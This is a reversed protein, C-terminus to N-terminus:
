PKAPDVGSPGFKPRLPVMRMSTRPLRLSSALPPGVLGVFVGGAQGEPPPSELSRHPFPFRTRHESTRPTQRVFGPM